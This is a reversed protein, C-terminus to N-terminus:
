PRRQCGDSHLLLPAITALPKSVAFVRVQYGRLKVGRFVRSDALHSGLCGFATDIGEEVSVFM